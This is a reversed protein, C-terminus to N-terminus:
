SEKAPKQRKTQPLKPKLCSDSSTRKQAGDTWQSGNSHGLGSEEAGAGESPGGLSQNSELTSCELYREGTKESELVGSGPHGQKSDLACVELTGAQSKEGGLPGSESHGEQNKCINGKIHEGHADKELQDRHSGDVKSPTELRETKSETNGKNVTVKSKTKAKGSKESHM